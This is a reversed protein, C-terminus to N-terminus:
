RRDVRSGSTKRLPFTLENMAKEHLARLREGGPPTTGGAGSSDGASTAAGQDAPPRRWVDRAHVFTPQNGATRVSTLLHRVTLKGTALRRRRRTGGSTM